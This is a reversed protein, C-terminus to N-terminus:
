AAKLDPTLALTYHEPHVGSPLRQASAAICSALVLISSALLTPRITLMQRIVTCAPAPQSLRAQARRRCRFKCTERDCVHPHTAPQAAPCSGRAPLFRVELEEERRRALLQPLRGTARAAAPYKERGCFQLEWHAPVPLRRPKPPRRQLARGSSLQPSPYGRRKGPFPWRGRVPPAEASPVDKDRRGDRAKM